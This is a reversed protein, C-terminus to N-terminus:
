EVEGVEGVLLTVGGTAFNSLDGTTAQGEQSSMAEQMTEINSYWFETMRYYSPKKGEATNLFKTLELKEHGTMKAAKPLHNNAYYNEFASTDTPHGYLVTVKIM